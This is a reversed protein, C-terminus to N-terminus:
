NFLILNIDCENLNKIKLITIILAEFKPFLLNLNTKNQDFSPFDM